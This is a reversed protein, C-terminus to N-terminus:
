RSTINGTSGSADQAAKSERTELEAQRLVTAEAPDTGAKLTTKELFYRWGEHRDAPSQNDEFGKLTSEANTRGKVVEVVGASEYTRVNHRIVVYSAKIEDNTLHVGKEWGLILPRSQSYGRSAHNALSPPTRRPGLKPNKVVSDCLRPFFRSSTLGFAFLIGKKVAILRDTVHQLAVIVLLIVFPLFARRFFM